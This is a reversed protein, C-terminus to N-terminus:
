WRSLIALLGVLGFGVAGTVLVALVANQAVSRDSIRTMVVSLALMLVFIVGVTTLFVPWGSLRIFWLKVDVTAIIDERRRDQGSLLRLRDLEDPKRPARRGAPRTM